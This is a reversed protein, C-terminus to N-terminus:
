YEPFLPTQCAGDVAFTFGETEYDLVRDGAISLTRPDALVTVGDAPIRVDDERRRDFALGLEIGGDSTTEAFVRVTVESRDNEALISKIKAQARDSIRLRPQALPQM